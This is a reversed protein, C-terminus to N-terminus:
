QKNEGDAAPPTNNKEDVVSTLNDNHQNEINWPQAPSTSSAPLTPSVSTDGVTANVLLPRTIRRLLPVLLFPLVLALLLYIIPGSGGSDSSSSSLGSGYLVLAGGGIFEGIFFVTGLGVTTGIVKSPEHLGVKKYIFKLILMWAVVMVAIAFISLIFASGIGLAIAIPFALFGLVKYGVASGSAVSNEKALDGVNMVTVSSTTLISAVCCCCCCCSSCTPTAVTAKTRTDDFQTVLRKMIRNAEM